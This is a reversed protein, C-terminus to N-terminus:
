RGFDAPPALGDESMPGSIVVGPDGAQKRFIPIKQSRQYLEYFEHPMSVSEGVPFSMEIGNVSAKWRPYVPNDASAPTHRGAFERDEETPPLMVTIWEGEDIQRRADEHSEPSRRYDAMAKRWEASGRRLVTTAGDAPAEITPTMSRPM